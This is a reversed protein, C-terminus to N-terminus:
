NKSYSGKHNGTKLEKDDDNAPVQGPKSAASVLAFSNKYKSSPKADNQEM